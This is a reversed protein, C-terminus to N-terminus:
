ISIVYSKTAIFLLNYYYDDGFKIFRNIMNIYDSSTININSIKQLEENILNTYLTVENMKYMNNNLIKHFCLIVEPIEEIHTNKKYYKNYKNKTITFDIRPATAMDFKIIKVEPIEIAGYTVRTTNIKYTFGEFDFNFM